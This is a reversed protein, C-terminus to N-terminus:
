RLAAVATLEEEILSRPLPVYGLSMAQRQGPGLAWELLRKVAARKDADTEKEPVVLWTLTSIPYADRDPSGILSRNFDAPISHGISRAAASISPLDARVFRGAANRVSSIGLKRRFAYIFQTYGFSYPTDAVLASVGQNGAAGEGTPWAVRDGEGVSRKWEPVTESLYHTFAFTTGSGDSRHIVRIPRHPLYAGPNLAQLEPDDWSAIKGEFIAAASEPTLRLEGSFKPLNYVLVVAGIVTPFARSERAPKLVWPPVDSGAFDFEGTSFRMSGDSSGVPDYTITIAPFANQFSTFWRQYIPFPFTAGGGRLAVPGTSGDVAGSSTAGTGTRISNSLADLLQSSLNRGVASRSGAHKSNAFYSWLVDGNRAELMVSLYGRYEPEAYADNVRARPSLSHYGSVWIVGEGQLSADAQAAAALHLLRNRRLQAELERELRAVDDDGGMSGISIARVSRLSEVYQGYAASIALTMCLELFVSFYRAATM